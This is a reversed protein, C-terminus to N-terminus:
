QKNKLIVTEPILNLLDDRGLLEKYEMSHLEEMVYFLRLYQKNFENYLKLISIKEDILNIIFKYDCNEFFDIKSGM